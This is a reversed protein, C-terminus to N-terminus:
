ARSEAASRCSQSPRQACAHGAARQLDDPRIDIGLHPDTVQRAGLLREHGNSARQRGLGLDEHEVLGCRAQGCVFDRPQEDGKSPKARAADAHNVDRVPEVLHELNGVTHDDQAIAADDAFADDRSSGSSAIRSM